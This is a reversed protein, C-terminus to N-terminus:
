PAAVPPQGAGGVCGPGSGHGVSGLRLESRSRRRMTSAVLDVVEAQRAELYRRRATAAGVGRRARAVLARENAMDVAAIGDATASDTPFASFSQVSCPVTVGECVALGTSCRLMACPYVTYWRGQIRCRIRIPAGAGRDYVGSDSAARLWNPSHPSWPRRMHEAPNPRPTAV